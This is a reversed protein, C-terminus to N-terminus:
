HAALLRRTGLYSVLIAIMAYACLALTTSLHLSLGRLMVDRLLSIGFTAPLLWSIIRAPYALREVALFFGSFFLSALLVIMSYQVAQADTPSMLSILFGLGVSAVLVLGLVVAVAAPDGHLPVGLLQVVLTVLLAAV